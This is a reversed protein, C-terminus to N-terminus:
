NLGSFKISITSNTLLLRTGVRLHSLIRKTGRPIHVGWVVERTYNKMYVIIHIVRLFDPHAQDQM